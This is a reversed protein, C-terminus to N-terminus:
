SRSQAVPLPWLNSLLVANIDADDEVIRRRNPCDIGERADISQVLRHVSASPRDFRDFLPFSPSPTSVFITKGGGNPAMYHIIDGSISPSPETFIRNFSPRFKYSVLPSPTLIGFNLM